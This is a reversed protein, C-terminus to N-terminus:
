ALILKQLAIANETAWGFTTNDFICWTEVKRSRIEQSVSEIYHAEYTSKYIDPSGHLRYYKINKWEHISTDIPCREPDACVKSIGFDNLLQLATSDVWTVHRPELVVHGDYCSRIIDFFRTSVDHNFELKPPLQILLVGLKNGLSKITSISSCVETNSIQLKQVHTFQKSLKVSFRFNQPVTQAWREFTKAQHDKYFTSNIEVANLINSYRKLIPFVPEDGKHFLHAFTKPINWAATGVYFPVM